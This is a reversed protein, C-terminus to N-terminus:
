VVYVHPDSMKTPLSLMLPIGSIMTQLIRVNVHDKAGSAFELKQSTMARARLAALKLLEAFGSGGGSALHGAM